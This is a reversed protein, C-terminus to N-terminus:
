AVVSIANSDVSNFLNGPAVARVTISHSGTGLTILLAGNPSACTGQIVGDVVVQLYSTHATPTTEVHISSGTYLASNLVPVGFTYVPTSKSITNSPASFGLVPHWARCYVDFNQAVNPIQPAFFAGLAYTGAATSIVSSPTYASGTPVAYWYLATADGVSGDHTISSTCNAYGPPDATLVFDGVATLVPATVTLTTDVDQVGSTPGLTAGNKGTVRFKLTLNAEGAGIVYSYSLGSIVGVTGWSAGGNVSKELVYNSANTAASWGLSVTGTPKAFTASTFATAGVTIYMAVSLNGASPGAIAARQVRVRFLVDTGLEGTVPAYSYSTAFVDSAVTSWTMGADTSKELLYPANAQTNTWSLLLPTSSNVFSPAANWTPEGSWTTVNRKGAAANPSTWDDPDTGEFGVGATRVNVYRIALEYATVPLATDWTAAQAAGSVPISMVQSWDGGLPKAFIQVTESGTAGNNDWTLSIKRYRTDPALGADAALVASVYGEPPAPPTGSDRTVLYGGCVVPQMRERLTWRPKAPDWLSLCFGPVPVSVTVVDPFYFEGLYRLKDWHGFCNRFAGLDPFDAPLPSVLELSQGIPETSAPTVERPGDDSWWFLRKGDGFWANVGIIGHNEDLLQVDFDDFSSGILRYANNGKGMALVSTIGGFASLAGVAPAMGIVPNKPVGVQAYNEALFVTPQAPLSIRLIDGRDPDSASGFGVGMIYELHQVVAYFYVDAAGDGDLDAQLVAFSGVDEPTAFDPTYVITPLRSDIALEAHTFFVQGDAEAATVVPFEVGEALTGWIGDTPDEIPQLTDNETDWRFLRLERSERDYVVAIIDLTSEMGVIKILDTGWELPPLGTDAM